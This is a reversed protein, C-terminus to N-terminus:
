HYANHLAASKQIMILYLLIIIYLTLQYVKQELGMAYMCVHVHVVILGTDSQHM